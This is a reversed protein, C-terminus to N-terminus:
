TSISKYCYIFLQISRLHIYTIFSVGAGTSPIIQYYGQFSITYKKPFVMKKRKDAIIVMVVNVLNYYLQYRNLVLLNRTYVPSKNIHM